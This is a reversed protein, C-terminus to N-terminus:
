PIKELSFTELHIRIYLWRAVRKRLAFYAWPHQITAEQCWQVILRFPSESLVQSENEQIVQNFIDSLETRLLLPQERCCLGNMLFQTESPHEQIFTRLKDITDVSKTFTM